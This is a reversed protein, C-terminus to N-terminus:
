DSLERQEGSQEIESIQEIKGDLITLQKQATDYKNRANRLHTDLTDFEERFKALQTSLGRLRAMVEEANKEIELGKLGIAVTFLYAYFSNPSVPIVHREMAYNQLSADEGADEDRVITEYYVNEAM